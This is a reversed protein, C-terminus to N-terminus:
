QNRWSPSSIQETLCGDQARCQYRPSGSNCTEWNWGLKNKAIMIMAQRALIKVAFDAKLKLRDSGPQYVGSREFDRLPHM